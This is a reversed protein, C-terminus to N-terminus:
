CKDLLLILHDARYSISDWHKGLTDQFLFENGLCFIATCKDLRQLYKGPSIGSGCVYAVPIDCRRAQDWKTSEQLIILVAGVDKPLGVTPGMSPLIIELDERHLDFLERSREWSTWVLINVLAATAIEHLLIPCLTGDWLNFYYDEMFQVVSVFLATPPTSATGIRKNMGDTMFTYSLEGPPTVHNIMLTRRNTNVAKGPHAVQLDLNYYQSVASRLGRATNAAVRNADRVRGAKPVQLTYDQHAWKLPISPTVAPALLKTPALIVVGFNKEIQPVM